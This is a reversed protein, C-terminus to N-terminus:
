KEGVYLLRIKQEVYCNVPVESGPFHLCLDQAPSPITPASHYGQPSMPFTTRNDAVHRSGPVASKSHKFLELSCRPQSVISFADPLHFGRILLSLRTHRRNKATVSPRLGYSVGQLEKDATRALTTRGLGRLTCDIPRPIDLHQSGQYPRTNM